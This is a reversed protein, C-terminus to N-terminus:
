GLITGKYNEVEQLLKLDERSTHEISHCNACLLICKDLEKVISNWAKNAVEGITFEKKGKCHHFV